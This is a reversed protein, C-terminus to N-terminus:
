PESTGRRIRGLEVDLLMLSTTTSSSANFIECGWTTQRLLPCNTLDTWVDHTLLTCLMDVSLHEGNKSDPCSQELIIEKDKLLLVRCLRRLADIVQDIKSPSGHGHKTM